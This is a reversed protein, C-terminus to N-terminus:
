LNAAQDISLDAPLESDVKPSIGYAYALPIIQRIPIGAKQAAHAITGEGQKYNELAQRIRWQQLGIAVVEAQTAPDSPLEHAVDESLQITVDVTKAM